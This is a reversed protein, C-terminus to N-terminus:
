YEPATSASFVLELFVAGDIPNHRYAPIDVFGLSRYLQVAADMSPLTDLRVSAYGFEGAFRLAAECLLRGLGRGRWSPRVYMRKLECRSAGLDRIGTIGVTADGARALLAVGRGAPGYQVTIEALERDTDQFDASFPLSALYEIVLETFVGYEAPTKATVIEVTDTM